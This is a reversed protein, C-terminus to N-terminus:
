HRSHRARRRGLAAGGLLGTALLVLSTPEPVSSTSGVGSFGGSGFDGRGSGANYASCSDSITNGQLTVAATLAIARGCLIDAGTNLSISDEALINGAFDTTTGLTASSGVEWYISSNADGGVVDIASASATTLTSDIQFVFSGSPDGTFDLTLAGTLQASSSFFYVGPTLTAVTGGTGLIKGSLNTTPTMAKLVDFATTADAEAGMAVANGVEFASAGVLTISGEGTISTGPYVGVDGNITTSGTNTMNSAGLTAFAEASGLFTAALAPSAGCLCAAFATIVGPRACYRLLTRVTEMDLVMKALGASLRVRNPTGLGTAVIHQLERAM